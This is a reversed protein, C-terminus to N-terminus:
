NPKNRRGKFQFGAHKMVKRNVRLFYGMRPSKIDCFLGWEIMFIILGM